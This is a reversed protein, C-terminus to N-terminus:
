DPGYDSRNALRHCRRLPFNSYFVFHAGELLCAISSLLLLRGEENETSILGLRHHIVMPSEFIAFHTFDNWFQWEIRDASKSWWHHHKFLWLPNAVSWHWPNLPYLSQLRWPLNPNTRFWLKQNSLTLRQPICVSWRVVMIAVNAIVVSSSAIRVTANTSEQLNESLTRLDNASNGM